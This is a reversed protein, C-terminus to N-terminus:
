RTEEIYLQVTIDEGATGSGVQDIDITFYSDATVSTTSFTTTQGSNSGAAIQLRNNQETWITTGNKNIDFIIASGTPATKAYAMVKTITGAFPVTIYAGMNTGTEAEGGIRWVVIKIASMNSITNNISRIDDRSKRLEGNLMTVGEETDLNDINDQAFIPSACLISACLLLIIFFIKRM